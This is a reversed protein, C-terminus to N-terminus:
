LSIELYKAVDKWEIATKARGRCFNIVDLVEQPMAFYATLVCQLAAQRAPPWISYDTLRHQNCYSCAVLVGLRQEFSLKRGATGCGIEHICAHQPFLGPCDPLQCTPQEQLLDHRWDRNARDFAARKPTRNRM